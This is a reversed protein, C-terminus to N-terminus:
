KGVYFGDKWNGETITGDECTVKGKGHPWGNAFDGEYICGKVEWYKIKGKDHQEGNVFDGEYVGFTDTLKGKGNPQDNEFDGEYVGSIEVWEGDIKQPDKTYSLKGKGHQKGNVFEGEYIDGNAFIFKGKGHPKDDFVEGKYVGNKYTIIENTQKEM